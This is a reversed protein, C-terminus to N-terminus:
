SGSSCHQPVVYLSRRASIAMPSGQGSLARDGLAPVPNAGTRCRGIGLAAALAAANQAYAGFCGRFVRRDLSAVHYPMLAAETRIGERYRREPFHAGPWNAIVSFGNRPVRDPKPLLALLKERHATMLQQLERDRNFRGLCAVSNHLRFGCRRKMSLSAM